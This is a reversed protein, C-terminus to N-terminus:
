FNTFDTILFFFQISKSFVYLIFLLFTSISLKISSVSLLILQCTKYVLIQPKM